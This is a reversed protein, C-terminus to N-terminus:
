NILQLKAWGRTARELPIKDGKLLRQLPEVQQAPFLSHGQILPGKLKGDIWLDDCYLASYEYIIPFSIVVIGVKRWVPV